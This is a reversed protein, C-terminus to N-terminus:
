PSAAAGASTRVRAPRIGATSRLPSSPRRAPAASGDHAGGEVEDVDPMAIVPLDHEVAERQVNGRASDGAQEPWGAAALGGQQPDGRSELPRPGSADEQAPALDVAITNVQRGLLSADAEHELIEGQEGMEVHQAVHRETDAGTVPGVTLGAGPRQQLPEPDAVLRVHM